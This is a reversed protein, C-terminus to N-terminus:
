IGNFGTLYFVNWPATAVVGDLSRAKMAHLLRDLNCFRRPLPARTFPGAPPSRPADMMAIEGGQGTWAPSTRKPRRSPFLAPLSRYICCSAAKGIVHIADQRGFGAESACCLRFDHGSALGDGDRNEGRRRCGRDGNLDAGAAVLDSKRRIEGAAHRIRGEIA